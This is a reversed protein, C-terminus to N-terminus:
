ETRRSALKRLAWPVTCVSCFLLASVRPSIYNASLVALVLAFVFTYVCLVQKQNIPEESYLWYKTKWSFFYGLYHSTWVTKGTVSRSGVKGLRMSEFPFVPIWFLTLWSTTIFSGNSHFDCTGYISTGFGIFSRAIYKQNEAMQGPKISSLRQGYEFIDKETLGRQKLQGDLTQRAEERLGSVECALRLIEDDSLGSYTTEYDATSM